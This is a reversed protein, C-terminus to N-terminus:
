RAAVPVGNYETLVSRSNIVGSLTVSVLTQDPDGVQMTVSLRNTGEASAILGREPDFLWTHQSTAKASAKITGGLEPMEESASFSSTATTKIKQCVAGRFQEEGLLVSQYKVVLDEGMVAGPVTVTGTWKDGKKLPKDPLIGAGGLLFVDDPTVVLGASEPDATPDGTLWTVKKIRGQNNVIYRAANGPSEQTQEEGDVKANVTHPEIVAQVGFDGGATEGLFEVTCRAQATMEMRSKEGAAETMEARGSRSHQYVATDGEKLRFRLVKGAPAASFVAPAAALLVAFPLLLSRVVRSIRMDGVGM